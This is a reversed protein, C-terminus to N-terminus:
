QQGGPWYQLRGESGESRRCVQLIKAFPEAIEIDRPGAREYVGAADEETDEADGCGSLDPFMDDGSSDDELFQSELSAM